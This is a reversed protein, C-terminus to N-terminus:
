RPRKLRKREASTPINMSERYKAITRRAIKIGQSALIEVLKDDSLINNPQEENILTKIKHKISLTSTNESGDLKSAANSFFYKLEFIGCPTHMYKATVARSVTSEHIEALEAIDKLQLPKLYDIGYEFFDRQKRVIEESVKLITEARRHLSKVIFSAHSLQHRIYKNTDKNLPIKSSYERNILVRPLSMQNLEVLYEGSPHRRVFVDPIINSNHEINYNATPKPNLTKIDNIVSLLDEDDANAIRKLEKLKGAGLLELNDLVSQSIPDLKNQELLQIQLCEALNEAFIGSPEFRKMKQLINQIYSVPTKLKTAITTINGRFYGAADLQECLLHAILKEKNSTFVLSIQESLIDYLSKEQALKQEFYDFDDSDHNKKSNAYDQWDQQTTNHYGECDSGYDDFSTNYDIDSVFEEENINNNPETNYDNITQEYEENDAIRDDERELFPNQELEKAIVTELELNSVQLLNIAQRLQQTMQLSQSQKIELRPTVAM